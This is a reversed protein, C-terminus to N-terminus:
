INSFVQMHLDMRKKIRTAHIYAASNIDNAVLKSLKSKKQSNEKSIYKWM